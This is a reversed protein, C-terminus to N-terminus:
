ARAGRKRQDALWDLNVSFEPLDYLIGAYDYQWKDAPSPPWFVGRRIESLLQRVLREADTQWSDSAMAETFGTEEATKGLICYCASRKAARAATFRPDDNAELMACYLPLQLSKWAMEKVKGREDVQTAIPLGRHKAFDVVSKTTDFPTGREMTDWTKYDIVRWEGTTENVDVRDCRGHITTGDYVVQLSEETAVIKWGERRWAVQCDAFAALRRKVSDAQLAVIAPTSLGFWEILLRDVQRALEDAIARADTSDALAGKAWADLADHCLTGFRAADLEEVSDDVSEGFQRKLYYSFPCQLYWDLNSPSIHELVGEAPPIPLNLLWESPLTRAPTEGTGVVDAYFRKARAALVADDRTRLLLRSPKLASSDAALMHFSIRVGERARCSLAEKLIFADRATRMDNTLLGLGTRLADPLFAHGVVSEPVFGEQFGAIVLEEEALWPVELWGDTQIVDGTDPELSYTASALRKGFLVRARDAPLALTAFEDFMEKVAEAAAAFERDEPRAEDLLHRAFIEGLLERVNELCESRELRGKVFNVVRLLDGEAFVRVDDLKEPLHKAKLDDLAILTKVVATRTMKLSEAIWRQVDGQRIFASFVDYRAEGSLAVLQGLLHGLSSTAVALRAPNHLMLGKAQFTGQMEPFLENDVLTLAPLAEEPKVAAFWDAVSEAEAGTTAFVSIQEDQLGLDELFGGEVNVVRGWQDFNEGDTENAHILVTVPLGMAEVVRYMAPIPSLLAPLIIEEVGEPVSPTAVALSASEGRFRLGKGHLTKLFAEELRALDEWRAVELDLNDGKLLEPAKAAVDRMLLGNEGIISWVRQLGQAVDVADAFTRREPAHPFLVPYDDPTAACLTDALVALETVADAVPLDASAPELLHAPMKVVPPIVGHDFRVALALRLRRGAQATPVIVMLHALSQAGSATERVRAVLEDAVADVLKLKPNLYKRTQM